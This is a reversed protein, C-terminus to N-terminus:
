SELTRIVSFKRGAIYLKMRLKGREEKDKNSISFHYQERFNITESTHPEIKFSMLEGDQFSSIIGRKKGFWGKKRYIDYGYINIPIASHNYIVIQNGVDASTTLNTIVDIRARNLWARITSVAAHLTALGGGWIAAFSVWWEFSFKIIEKEM